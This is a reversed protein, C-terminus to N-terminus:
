YDVGKIPGPANKWRQGNVIASVECAKLDYQEGIERQLYDGSAYMERIREADEPSLKRRNTIAGGAGPWCDGRTIQGIRAKSVGYIDSLDQHTVDGDAYRHRIEEVESRKLKHDPHREGRIHTDHRVKDRQNEGATGWVLNELRNDDPVGNLHRCQEHDEPLRDFTRLVLRHVGKRIQEKDYFFRVRMYGDQNKNQSLRKVWNQRDSWIQGDPTAYYGPFDPIPEASDPLVLDNTAM